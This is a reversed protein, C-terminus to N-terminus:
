IKLHKKIVKIFEEHDPAIGDMIRVNRGRPTIEYIGTLPNQNDDYGELQLAYVRTFGVRFIQFKEPLKVLLLFYVEGIVSPKPLHIYAFKTKADFDRIQFGLGEFSSLIEAGLNQVLHNWYFRLFKDGDRELYTFFENAKGHFVMPLAEHTYNYHQSKNKNM